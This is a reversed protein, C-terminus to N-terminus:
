YTPIPGTLVESPGVEAIGDEQIYVAGDPIITLKGLDKGRQPPGALTLLQAASHILM